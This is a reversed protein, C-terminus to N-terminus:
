FSIGSSSSIFMSHHCIWIFRFFWRLHLRRCPIAKGPTYWGRHGDAWKKRRAPGQPLVYEWTRSKNINLDAAFPEFNRRDRCLGPDAKKSRWIAEQGRDEDIIKERHTQILNWWMCCLLLLFKMLLKMVDSHIQCCAYLFVVCWDRSKLSLPHNTKCQEPSM